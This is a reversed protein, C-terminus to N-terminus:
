LQELQKKLAKLTLYARNTFFPSHDKDVKDIAVDLCELQGKSPKWTYRDKLSKLWDICPIISFNTFHHSAGEKLMIVTNTLNTEDDESWTPKQEYLKKVATIAAKHDLIGDDTQYGDVSGLTKELIRQAHWLGDIGYDEGNVENDDIKKLEHTEESWEYGAERMKTFLTDRQSKTAPFVPKGTWHHEVGTKFNGLTNIGCYCGPCSDGGINGNCIFAGASTALVDGDKADQITWLHMKDQKSIPFYNHNGKGDSVQYNERDFSDIHWAVGLKNVVWDGVKFKLEEKDAFQQEDQVPRPCTKSMEGQKELWALAEAAEENSLSGREQNLHNIIMKRIKEDESEKLEPCNEGIYTCINAFGIDSKETTNIINVVGELIKKYDKM